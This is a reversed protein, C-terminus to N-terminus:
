VRASMQAFWWHHGEPDIAAYERQGYPMDEPEREVVAGHARAQEFHADVDDVYVVLGGTVGPLTRPSALGRPTLVRHLWIVSEGARVAAHIVRGNADGDIGGSTFGFARVLFDHAAAIDECVLVPVLRAVAM